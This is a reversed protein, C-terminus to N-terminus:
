ANGRVLHFYRQAEDPLQPLYDELLIRSFGDIARLPARLDHSVSYSFAELEKNAAELQATRELVRQELDDKLQRIEAEVRRRETIDRLIVTFLKQGGVEIQAISAEIPFEEGNTRRGYIAGLAGMSRKTVNTQGFKEV